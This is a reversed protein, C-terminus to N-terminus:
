FDPSKAVSKALKQLALLTCLLALGPAAAVWWAAPDQRVTALLSGWSVVEPGQGIGIFALASELSILGALSLPTYALLPRCAHPLAHRWWIRSMPLGSARAAEIFPQVRVQLMQGRVLRATGPWALVALLALLQLQTLPPGAALAVLLVLRPVAGLLTTAGLVLADLPLAFAYNRLAPALPPWTAAIALLATAILLISAIAHGPLALAWWAIGLAGTAAALPLRLRQNGWYGAAGGAVAGAATALLVAPLSLLLLRQAGAVLGALVDRGLPDTGLYHAPGIPSWSPPASVQLLDPTAASYPLPLWPAVVGVASVLLLWALALGGLPQRGFFPRFYRM